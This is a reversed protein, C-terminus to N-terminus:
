GIDVEATVFRPRQGISGADSFRMCVRGFRTPEGCAACAPAVNAPALWHTQSPSCVLEGLDTLVQYRRQRGYPGPAVANVAEVTAIAAGTKRHAVDLVRVGRAEALTPAVLIMTGPTLRATVVKGAATM